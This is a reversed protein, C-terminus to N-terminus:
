DSDKKYDFQSESQGLHGILYNLLCNVASSVTWVAIVKRNLCAALYKSRPTMPFPKSKNEYFKELKQEDSVISNTSNRREGYVTPLVVGQSQKHFNAVSLKAFSGLRKVAAINDNNVRKIPSPHLGNSQHKPSSIDGKPPSSITQSDQKNVDIVTSGHLKIEKNPLKTSPGINQLSHIFSASSTGFKSLTKSSAKTSQLPPPDNSKYIENDFILSDLKKEQSSNTIAQQHSLWHYREFFDVRANLGFYKETSPLAYMDDNSVIPVSSDKFKEVLKIGQNQSTQGKQGQKAAEVGAVVAKAVLSGVSVTPPKLPQSLDEEINFSDSRTVSPRKFGGTDTHSIDSLKHPKQPSKHTLNVNEHVSHNFKNRLIPKFGEDTNTSDHTISGNRDIPELKNTKHNNTQTLLNYQNMNHNNALHKAFSDHSQNYGTQKDM